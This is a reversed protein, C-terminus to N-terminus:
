QSRVEVATLGAETLCTSLQEVTGHSGQTADVDIRRALDSAEALERCTQLCPQSAGGAVHCQDGVVVISVEGAAPAEVDPASAPAAPAERDADAPTGGGGTGLGPWCDSRHAALLIVAAVLVGL